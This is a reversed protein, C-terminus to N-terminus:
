FGFYNFQHLGWSDLWNYQRGPCPTALRQDSVKVGTDTTTTATTSVTTNDRHRISLHLDIHQSKGYDWADFHWNEKWYDAKHLNVNMILLMAWSSPLLIGNLIWVDIKKDFQNSMYVCSTDFKRWPLSLHMVKNCEIDPTTRILPWRKEYFKLEHNDHLSSRETTM